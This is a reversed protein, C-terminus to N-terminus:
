LELDPVPMNNRDKRKEKHKIESSLQADIMSRKIAGRLHKDQIGAFTYKLYANMKFASNPKLVAM